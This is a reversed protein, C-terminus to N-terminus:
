SAKARPLAVRVTQELPLYCVGADACGQSTVKLNVTGRAADEASVPVRIRVLRRFGPKGLAALVARLRDPREPHYPGTDHELFSPHSILLTAMTDGAAGSPAFQRLVPGLLVGIVFVALTAFNSIWYLTLNAADDARIVALRTPLDADPAYPTRTVLYGQSLAVAFVASILVFVFLAWCLGRLLRDSSTM